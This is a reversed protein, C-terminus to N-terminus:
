AALNHHKHMSKGISFTIIVLFLTPKSLSLRTRIALEPILSSSIVLILLSLALIIPLDLTNQSQHWTQLDIVEMEKRGNKANFLFAWFSRVFENVIKGKALDMYYVKANSPDSLMLVKTDQEHMMMKKPHIEVGDFTKVPPLTM